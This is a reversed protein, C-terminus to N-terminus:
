FQGLPKISLNYHNTYVYIAKTQLPLPKVILIHCSMQAIAYWFSGHLRILTRGICEKSGFNRSTSLLSELWATPIHMTIQAEGPVSGVTYCRKNPSIEHNLRFTSINKKNRWLFKCHQYENSAGWCPVELSYVSCIRQLLFLFYIIHIGM